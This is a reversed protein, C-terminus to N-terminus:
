VQVVREGEAALGNKNRLRTSMWEIGRQGSIRIRIKTHAIGRAELGADYRMRDIQDLASRVTSWPGKGKPIIYKLNKSFPM